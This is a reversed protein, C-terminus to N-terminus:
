RSRFAGAGCVGDCARALRRAIGLFPAHGSGWGGRARARLGARLGWLPPIFQVAAIHARCPQLNGSVNRQVQREAGFPRKGRTDYRGHSMMNVGHLGGNENDAANAFGSGMGHQGGMMHGQGAELSYAASFMDEPSPVMMSSEPM